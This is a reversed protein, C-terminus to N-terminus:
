LEEIWTLGEIIRALGAFERPSQPSQTVLRIRASQDLVILTPTSTHGLRALSALVDTTAPVLPVSRTWGPLAARIWTSDSRPGAYWIVRLQLQERVKRRHLLDLIRLNGMCDEKQLLVATHIPRGIMAQGVFPALLRPLEEQQRSQAADFAIGATAVFLVAGFWRMATRVEHTM